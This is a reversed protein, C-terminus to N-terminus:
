RTEPAVMVREHMQGNMSETLVRRHDLVKDSMAHWAPGRQDPPVQGLYHLATDVEDLTPNDRLILLQM